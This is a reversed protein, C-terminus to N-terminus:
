EAKYKPAKWTLQITLIDISSSRIASVFFGKVGSWTRIEAMGGDKLKFQHVVNESSEAFVRAIIENLYENELSDYGLEPNSKYLHRFTKRTTTSVGIPLGTYPDTVQTQEMGALKIM